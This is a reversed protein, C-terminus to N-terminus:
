LGYQSIISEARKQISDNPFQRAERLLDRVHNKMEPNRLLDPQAKLKLELQYLGALQPYNLSTQNIGDIHPDPPAAVGCNQFSLCPSEQYIKRLFEVDATTTLDRAILFAILGRGNRDEIPIQDYASQLNQHMEPSLSKLERDIRPDNDNKSKLISQFVEWKKQDAESLQGASQVKVPEKEAISITVEKKQEAPYNGSTFDVDSPKLNGSNASEEHQPWFLFLGTILLAGILIIFQNKKIQM